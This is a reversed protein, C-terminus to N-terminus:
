EQLTPVIPAFARKLNVGHGSEGHDSQDKDQKTEVAILELVDPLVQIVCHRHAEDQACKPASLFTPKEQPHKPVVHQPQYQKALRRFPSARCHCCQATDLDEQGRHNQANVEAFELQSKIWKQQEPIRGLVRSQRPCCSRIVERCKRQECVTLPQIWQELIVPHGDM